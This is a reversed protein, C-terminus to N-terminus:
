KRSKKPGSQGGSKRKRSADIKKRFQKEEEDEQKRQIHESTEVKNKEKEEAIKAAKENLKAKIKNELERRRQTRVQSKEELRQMESITKSQYSHYLVAGDFLGNEIKYLSLTLRPGVEILKVKTKQGSSTTELSNQDEVDSQPFEDDILDAVDELQGANVKPLVNRSLKNIVTSKSQVTSSVSYHRIEIMDETTKHVLMIRKCDTLKISNLNISPLVQQFSTSVLTLVNSDLSSSSGFGSLVLLPAVSFDTSGASNTLSHETRYSAIDRMLSFSEIRFTITPGQPLRMIRLYPAVETQTLCFLHSINLPDAVAVFDKITNTPKVKLRRSTNPSFILRMDKVLHKLSRSVDGKEFIFVRPIGVGYDEETPPKHTRTKRRRIVM